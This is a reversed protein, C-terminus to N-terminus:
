VAQDYLSDESQFDNERPSGIRTSSEPTLNLNLRQNDPQRFARLLLPLLVTLLIEHCSFPIALYNFETNLIRMGHHNILIHFRNSENVLYCYLANFYYIGLTWRYDKLDIFPMWPMNTNICKSLVNLIPEEPMLQVEIPRPIVPLSVNVRSLVQAIGKFIYWGTDVLNSHVRYPTFYVKCLGISNIVVITNQQLDLIIFGDPGYFRYKLAKKIIKWQYPNIFGPILSGLGGYILRNEQAEMLLLTGLAPLVNSIEPNSGSICTHILGYRSIGEAFDAGWSTNQALCGLAVMRLIDKKQM